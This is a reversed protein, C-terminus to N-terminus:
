HKIGLHILENLIAFHLYELDKIEKENILHLVKIFLCM